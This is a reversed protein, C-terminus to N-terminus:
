KGTISIMEPQAAKLGSSYILNLFDPLKKNRGGSNKIMWRAQDELTLILSQDLKVVFNYDPWEKKLLPSDSGIYKSSIALAEGPKEAIFRNAKVIAMLFKKVRQPNAEIWSRSGSINWTMTYIDPEYLTVANDGLKDQLNNTHPSWTCVADVEGKQLVDEIREAEVDVIRVSAPDIYSTALFIHLFFEASSGRTVGIIKGSLDKAMSIGHDKRAIILIARNIEAITAVIAVPEGKIAARAIPTDAETALDVDGKLAEALGLHGSSCPRFSVDLGEEKFLGKKLAVYLATSGLWTSDAVTIKENQSQENQRNKTDCALFGVLTMTCALCLAITRKM